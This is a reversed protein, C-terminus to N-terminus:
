YYEDNYKRERQEADREMLLQIYSIAKDVQSQKGVVIVNDTISDATPMYVDVKYNGRIHKIQSGRPGIVCHFFEQPVYIEEHTCGPHTVTTYHYDVLQQLTKKATLCAERPGAIGVNCTPPRNGIQPQNPKWDTQPITIKINLATQLAQINRGNPGVIESLHRPHVTVFHEGFTKDTQLLTAIGKAALEQIAKKAKTISQKDNGTIVITAKTQKIAKQNNSDEKPPANVELKCGTADQIAQMTAGKPGIIIGVKKGDIQVSETTAAATAAPKATAAAVPKKARAKKKPNDLPVGNTKKNNNNNNCSPNPRGPQNPNPQFSRLRNSSTTKPIRTPITM